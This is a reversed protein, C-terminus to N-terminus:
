PTRAGMVNKKRTNWRRAVCLISGFCSRFGVSYVLVDVLLKGESFYYEIKFSCENRSFLSCIVETIRQVHLVFPVNHVSSWLM